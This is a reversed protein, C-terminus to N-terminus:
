VADSWRTLAALAEDRRGKTELTPNKVWANHAKQFEASLATGERRKKWAALGNEDLAFGTVKNALELIREIISLFPM